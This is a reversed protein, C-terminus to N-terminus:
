ECSVTTHFYVMSTELVLPNIIIIITTTTTTLIWVEGSRPSIEDGRVEDMMRIMERDLVDISYM